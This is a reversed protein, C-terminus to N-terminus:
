EAVPLLIESSLEARKAAEQQERWMAAYIGDQAILDGHGGREAIRGERL